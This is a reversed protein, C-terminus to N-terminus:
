INPSICDGSDSVLIGKEGAWDGRGGCGGGVGIVVVPVERRVVMEKPAM